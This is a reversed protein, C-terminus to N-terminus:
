GGDREGLQEAEKKATKREIGCDVAAIWQQRM